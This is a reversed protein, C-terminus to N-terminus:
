GNKEGLIQLLLKARAKYTHLKALELGASSVKTRLDDNNWALRGKEVMEKEDKYIFCNVGDIFGLQAYHPNYSTLLCTGCGLTEFNRYNIDISINANFHIKYSNIARVMSDGIVFIDERFGPFAAKMINLLYQRNVVNGCFGMGIHKFGLPYILTDDYCNPFWVSDKDVFEPTAQLILDYNQDNALKLYGEIGKVHADISWLLKKARVNSLDPVWGSEDYNELNIIVDFSDFEPILDYLSHGLGWVRVEHDYHRLARTIGWCERYERNETHRGSEQIILFKM